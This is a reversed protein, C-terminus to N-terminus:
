LDPDFAKGDHTLPQVGEVTFPTLQERTGYQVGIFWADDEFRIPYSEEYWASDVIECGRSQLVELGGQVDSYRHSISTCGGDVTLVISHMSMTPDIYIRDVPLVPTRMYLDALPWMPSSPDAPDVGAILGQVTGVPGTVHIRAPETRAMRSVGDAREVSDPALFQSWCTLDTPFSRRSGEVFNVPQNHQATDLDVPISFAGPGAIRLDLTQFNIVDSSTVDWGFETDFPFIVGGRKLEFDYVYLGPWATWCGFYEYNGGHHATVTPHKSRFEQSTLVGV